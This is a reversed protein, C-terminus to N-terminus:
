GAHWTDRDYSARYLWGGHQEPASSVYEPVFKYEALVACTTFAKAYLVYVRRMYGPAPARAGRVESARTLGASGIVHVRSARTLRASGVVHVMRARTLRTSGIVHEMAMDMFASAHCVNTRGGATALTRNTTPGGIECAAGLNNM